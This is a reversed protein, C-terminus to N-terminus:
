KLKSLSNVCYQIQDNTTFASTSFRIANELDEGECGIGKLVNSKAKYRSYFASGSSVFIGEQSLIDIIHESKFGRFGININHPLRWEFDNPGNIKINIGLAKIKKFLLDRTSKRTNNFSNLQEYNIQVAKTFGAIGPINEVEKRLGYDYM